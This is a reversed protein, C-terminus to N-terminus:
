SSIIFPSTQRICRDNLPHAVAQLDIVFLVLFRKERNSSYLHLGYDDYQKRVSFLSDM